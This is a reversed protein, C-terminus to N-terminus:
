AASAIESRSLPMPAPDEALAAVSAAGALGAAFGALALVTVIRPM